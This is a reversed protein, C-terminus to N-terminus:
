RSLPYGVVGSSAVVAGPRASASRVPEYYVDVTHWLLRSSPWEQWLRRLHLAEGKLRWRQRRALVLATLGDYAVKRRPFIRSVIGKLSHIQLRAYYVCVSSLHAGYDPPQGGLRFICTSIRLLSSLM